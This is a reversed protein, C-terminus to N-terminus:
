PIGWPYHDRYVCHIGSPSSGLDVTFELIQDGEQLYMGYVRITYEGSPLNDISYDVDFLCLCFCGGGELSEDEVISIIGDEITVEALIETPCCNFGANVHRLLLVGAGDYQYAVCDQNPPISDTAGGKGFEKCGEYNILYGTPCSPPPGGKFLYSVLYVMDGLDVVGECNCDGTWLPEPAPGGKYLHTALYVVDGINIVGDANVDGRTHVTSNKVAPAFPLPDADAALLQAPNSFALCILVAACLGFVFTKGKLM